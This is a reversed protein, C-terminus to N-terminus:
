WVFTSHNLNRPAVYWTEEPRIAVCDDSGAPLEAPASSQDEMVENQIPQQTWWWPNLDSFSESGGSSPSGQHVRAVRQRIFLFIASDRPGVQHESMLIRLPDRVENNLHLPALFIEDEPHGRSDAAAVGYVGRCWFKDFFEEYSKHYQKPNSCRLQFISMVFNPSAKRRQVNIYGDVDTASQEGVIKIYEPVRCISNPPMDSSWCHHAEGDFPSKPQMSWVCVEQRLRRCPKSAVESNTFDVGTLDFTEQYTEQEASSPERGYDTAQPLLATMSVSSTTHTLRFRKDAWVGQAVCLM